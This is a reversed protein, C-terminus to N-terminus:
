LRNERRYRSPMVGTERKFVVSLYEPHDFGTREAIAELSLDTGALLERVRNMRVRLIEEHPTRGVLKAFCREFARRSQHVTALVDDVGIGDCADRLGRRLNQLEPARDGSIATV